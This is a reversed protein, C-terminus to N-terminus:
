IKQLIIINEFNNIPKTKIHQFGIEKASYLLYDIDYFYLTHNNIRKKNRKKFQEILYFSNNNSFEKFNSTYNYKIRYKSDFNIKLFNNKLDSINNYVQLFLYGKFILWKYCNYLLSNINSTFYIDNDIISIHTFSKEDFIYPDKDYIKIHQYNNNPYNHKNVNIINNSKSISLINMNNKLLENIHGGHKIGVILHNNYVNNLYDLIIFSIKSYYKKDFFLDDYLYSYYKDFNDEYNYNKKFFSNNDISEFNEKNKTFYFYFYLIITIIILIFLYIEM